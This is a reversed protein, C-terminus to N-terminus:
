REDDKVMVPFEINVYNSQERCGTQLRFSRGDLRRPLVSGRFPPNSTETSLDQVADDRQILSMQSSDCRPGYERHELYLHASHAVLPAVARAQPWCLRVGEARLAGDDSYSSRLQKFLSKVGASAQHKPKQNGM